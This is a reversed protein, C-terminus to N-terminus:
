CFIQLDLTKELVFYVRGSIRARRLRKARGVRGVYQFTIFFNCVFLNRLAKDNEMDFFGAFSTVEKIVSFQFIRATPATLTTENQFTLFEFFCSNILFRHTLISENFLNQEEFYKYLLVRFFFLDLRSEVLILKRFRM